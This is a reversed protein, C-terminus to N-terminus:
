SVSQSTEAIANTSKTVEAQRSSPLLAKATASTENSYYSRQNEWSGMSGAMDDKSAFGAFM